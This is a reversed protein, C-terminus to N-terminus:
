TASAREDITEVAARAEDIKPFAWLTGWFSM